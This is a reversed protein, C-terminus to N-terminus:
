FIAFGMGQLKLEQQMLEHQEPFKDPWTPGFYTKMIGAITSIRDVQITRCRLSAEEKMSSEPILFRSTTDVRVDVLAQIIPQVEELLDSFKKAQDSSQDFDSFSGMSEYLKLSKEMLAIKMSSIRQVTEIDSLDRMTLDRVEM